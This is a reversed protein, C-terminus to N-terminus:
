SGPSGPVPTVPRYAGEPPVTGGLRALDSLVQTLDSVGYVRLSGTAKSRATKVQREPVFFVSAGASEVAVTKQPVGGVEGVAGTPTITGTAAIRRGGTLHGGGLTDLIALTMALGASPGGISTTRVSVPFPFTFAERTEAQVGLFGQSPSWARPCSPTAGPHAVGRPWRELRVTRQVVPGSVVAAKSTVKSKEVSLTVSQGARHLALAQAFACANPSPHGDVATVTQGVSLVKSAPTGPVVSFVLTGLERATVRYGLRSLAAAGAASQSQAMELYGQAALESAPTAPGLVTAAPVVQSDPRLEDFLYSLATVQTVYVDTLLIDGEVRHHRSVPVRVLHVVSQALGPSIVYYGLQVQGAIAAAAALLAVVALTVLLWRRGLVRGAAHVAAARRSIPRPAAAAAAPHEPESMSAM